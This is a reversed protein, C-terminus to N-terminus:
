KDEPKLWDKLAQVAKEALDITTDKAKDIAEKTEPKNMFDEVGKRADTLVEGTKDAFKKVDENEMAKDYVEKAMDGTKRAVDKVFDGAESLGRKVDENAKLEDIKKISFDYVQKSKEKVFDTAKKIEEPDKITDLIEELYFRKESLRKKVENKVEENLDTM